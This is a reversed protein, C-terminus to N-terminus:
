KNVKKFFYAKRINDGFPTCTFYVLKISMDMNKPILNKNFDFIETKSVIYKDWNDLTIITWDKWNNYIYYGSNETYKYSNHSYLYAVDGIKKRTVFWYNYSGDTDSIIFTKNNDSITYFDNKNIQITNNITWTNNSSILKWWMININVNLNDYKSNDEYVVYAHNINAITVNDKLLFYSLLTTSIFILMLIGGEYIKSYTNWTFIM